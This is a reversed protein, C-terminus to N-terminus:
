SPNRASKLSPNFKGLAWEFYKAATELDNTRRIESGRNKLRRVHEVKDELLLFAGLIYRTGDMVRHGGHRVSGPRFTGHGVDMPLVNDLGMHEFFTGGGVYQDQPSMALTM